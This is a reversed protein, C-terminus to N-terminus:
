WEGDVPGGTPRDGRGTEHSQLGIRTKVKIPCFIMSETEQEKTLDELPDNDIHNETVPRPQLSFSGSTRLDGKGSPKTKPQNWGAEKGNTQSSEGLFYIGKVLYCITQPACNKTTRFM